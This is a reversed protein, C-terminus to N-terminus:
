EEPGEDDNREKKDKKGPLSYIGRRVRVVEGSRHLKFLLQDVSNRDRGGAAAWIESVSMGDSPADALAALITSRESSVQVEQADGLITWRCTDKNFQCATEKEEIDRGRAHLSVSGAQRRLVLTTDAAGTLGNTGSVMDFPDDAEMKRVHHIVVIAVGRRHALAHLGTIAAYDASYAPTNAKVSPRFRELTDIVILLPKEVSGCWEELHELGGNDARKWEAALTLRDPWNGIPCLKQLRHKLRRQSDELALYLVDGQSPKLDGLVFRDGACAVCVDYLLWSKGIKPKGAFITVGESIYGPLIFKVPDFHKGKLATASIVNDRWGASPKPLWKPTQAIRLQLDQITSSQLFDSVDAKQPLEPFKVVRVSSALSSTLEAKREAHRVGPEDNDALVVVDRGRLFEVAGEPLGDGVGGFTLAPLGRETLTDVDKEGEPWLIPSQAFETAFPDVNGIYPCALYDAPKAPRWEGKAGEYWYWNSYPGAARKIKVRVALGHRRYVHRRIEDPLKPLDTPEKCLQLPQSRLAGSVAGRSSGATSRGGEPVSRPRSQGAKMGSKVTSYFERGRLGVGEAAARLHHIVEGEKLGLSSLSASSKFLTQNRFGETAASLRGIEGEIAAAIYPHDVGNM